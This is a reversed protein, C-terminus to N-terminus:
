NRQRWEGPDAFSGAWLGKGERRAIREAEAYAAKSYRTYDVAQGARVMLEGLDRGAVQCRAVIRRYRDRDREQCSVTQGKVFSLLVYRAVEGCPYTGGARTCTQQLEPADIGWLRIREGAVTLTDGDAVHEVTGAIPQAHV